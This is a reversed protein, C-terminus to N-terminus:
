QGGGNKLLYNLCMNLYGGRNAGVDFIMYPFQTHQMYKLAVEEGSTALNGGSGVGSMYLLKAIMREIIKMKTIKMRDGLAIKQTEKGFKGGSEM